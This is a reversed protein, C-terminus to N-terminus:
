SCVCVCVCALVCVCVYMYTCVRVCMCVCVCVCVRVCVCVCVCVRMCVCVCFSGTRSTTGGRAARCRVLADREAAANHRRRVEERLQATQFSGYICM